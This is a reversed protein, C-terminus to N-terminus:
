GPEGGRLHFFHFIRKGTPGDRRVSPFRLPHCRTCIGADTISAPQCGAAALSLRLAMKLDFQYKGTRNKAFAPATEPHGTFQRVLDGGVEYCSGEIGPGIWFELEAPPIGRASVLELARREIGANLGRWGVHLIGGISRRPHWYYLPLCDATVILGAIGPREMMWGDARVRSRVTGALIVRRGHVQTLGRLPIGGLWKRLAPLTVGPEAFGMRATPTELVYLSGKGCAVRQPEVPM